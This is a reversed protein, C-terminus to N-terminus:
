SFQIFNVKKMHGTLSVLPDTVDKKMGDAPIEWFKISADESATAVYREFFPHWDSDLIAGTHGKILPVDSPLRRPNDIDLILLTGGGSAWSISAYTGGSKVLCSESAASSPRIGEFKVKEEDGFVHRFRSGRVFAM